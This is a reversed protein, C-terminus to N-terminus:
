FGCFDCVTNKSYGETPQEPMAPLAVMQGPWFKLFAGLYAIAPIAVASGFQRVLPDTFLILTETGAHAPLTLDKEDESASM